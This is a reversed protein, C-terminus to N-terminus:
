FASFLASLLGLVATVLGGLGGLLDLIVSM